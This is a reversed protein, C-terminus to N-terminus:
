LTSHNIVFVFITVFHFDLDGVPEPLSLPTLSDNVNADDFESLSALLSTSSEDECANTDGFENASNLDHGDWRENSDLNPMEYEGSATSKQNLPRNMIRDGTHIIDVSILFRKNYLTVWLNHESDGAEDITMHNDSPNNVTSADDDGVNNSSSGPVNELDIPASVGGDGKTTSSDGALRNEGLAIESPEHGDIESPNIQMPRQTFHYSRMKGLVNLVFKKNRFLNDCIRQKSVDFYSAAEKVSKAIKILNLKSDYIYIPSTRKIPLSLRALEFSAKDGFSRAHNLTKADFCTSYIYWRWRFLKGTDAFRRLSRTDDINTLSFSADKLSSFVHTLELSENYVYIPKSRPM